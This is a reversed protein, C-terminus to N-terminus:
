VWAMPLVRHRRAQLSYEYEPKAVASLAPFRPHDLLANLVIRGEMRALSSGVCQHIGRGFTLHQMKRGLVLESPTEFKDPDRNAAGWMLMLTSGAPISIGDLETDHTVSRLMHQFPSELRLAEEIFPELLSRDDRLRDPSILGNRSSAPPM